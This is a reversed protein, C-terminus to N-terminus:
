VPDFFGPFKYNATESEFGKFANDFIPKFLFIYYHM